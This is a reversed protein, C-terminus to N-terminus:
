GGPMPEHAKVPAGIGTTIIAPTGPQQALIDMSLDRVDKFPAELLLGGDM